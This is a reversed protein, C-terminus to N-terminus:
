AGIFAAIAEDVSAESDCRHATLGAARAGDVNAQVDDVFITEEARWGLKALAAEYVAPHPKAVGFEAAM